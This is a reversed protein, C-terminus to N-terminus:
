LNFNSVKLAGLGGKTQVHLVVNIALTTDYRALGQVNILAETFHDFLLSISISIDICAWRM